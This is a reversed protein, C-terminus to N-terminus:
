LVFRSIHNKARGRLGVHCSDVCHCKLMRDVLGLLSPKSHKDMHLMSRFYVVSFCDLLQACSRLYDNGALFKTAQIEYSYKHQLKVEINQM